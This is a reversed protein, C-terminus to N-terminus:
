ILGFIIPKIVKQKIIQIIENIIFKLKLTFHISVLDIILHILLVNDHLIFHLDYPLFLLKYNNISQIDYFM